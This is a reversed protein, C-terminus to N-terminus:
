HNLKKPAGGGTPKSTYLNKSGGGGGLGVIKESGGKWTNLFKWLGGEFDEDGGGKGYWIFKGWAVDKLRPSYLRRGLIKVNHNM